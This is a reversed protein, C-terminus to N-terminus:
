ETPEIPLLSKISEIKEFAIFYDFSRRDEESRQKLIIEDQDPYIFKYKQNIGMVVDSRQKKQIEPSRKSIGLVKNIEEISTLRASETNNIILKLLSLEAEEFLKTNAPRNLVRENRGSSNNKQYISLSYKKSLLWIFIGLGLTILAVLFLKSTFTSAKPFPSFVTYGTDSFDSFFQQEKSIRLSDTSGKMNTVTTSKTYSAM